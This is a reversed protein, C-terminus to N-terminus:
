NVTSTVCNSYRFSWCPYNCPVLRDVQYSSKVFFFFIMDFLNKNEFDLDILLSRLSCLSQPLQCIPCKGVFPFLNIDDARRNCRTGLYGSNVLRSPMIQFFYTVVARGWLWTRSDFWISQVRLCINSPRWDM